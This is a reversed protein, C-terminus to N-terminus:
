GMRAFKLAVFQLTPQRFSQHPKVFNPMAWGVLEGDVMLIQFFDLM